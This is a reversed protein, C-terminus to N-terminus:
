CIITEPYGPPHAWGKLTLTTAGLVPMRSEIRVPVRCDGENLHIRIIGTGKYHKPDRVEMEIIRTRFVGASTRLTDRGVVRVVTPNRAPDFHRDFSMTTDRDLPLTRLFYLFSLEDLPSASGLTHTKGKETLDRWLGSDAVIEVDERSRSLPHREEKVFKRTSLERRSPDIWSSTKDVGRIPGKGAELEFRLRWTTVGRELTPGEVWMKGEGVNGLRAVRVEYELSEGVRFPLATVARGSSGGDHGQARAVAPQACAVIAALALAVANTSAHQLTM